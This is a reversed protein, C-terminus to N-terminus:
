SWHLFGQNNVIAQGLQYMITGASAVGVVAGIVTGVGPVTSGLASIPAIVAPAGAYYASILYM